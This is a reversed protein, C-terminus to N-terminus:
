KVAGFTLGRELHRQGVIILIVPVIMTVVLGAAMVPYFQVGPNLLKLLAVTVPAKTSSLMLGLAFNHWALLFVLLSAGILGTKLLPLVIHLVIRVPKAGDIAAAEEIDKPIDEVYSRTLWVIMPLTIVQYVWIMGIYTDYLGLSQFLSFLPIVVLLVPAFRFGLIFFAIDEKFPIERRALVYGAPVGAILSVVVAGLAVVVSNIIPSLFDVKITGYSTAGAQAVDFLVRFNELTPTFIFTPPWAMVESQNKLSMMLIWVLPFALIFACLLVLANLIVTTVPSRTFEM